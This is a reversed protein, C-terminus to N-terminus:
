LAHLQNEKINEATINQAMEAPVIAKIFALVKGGDEDGLLETMLVDYANTSKFNDLIEQSKKFYKGDASKEGYSLDIFKNFLKMLEPGNQESVIKQVKAYLGGNISNQLTILETKTINFYFEEERNVGDFDTYKIVKKLM